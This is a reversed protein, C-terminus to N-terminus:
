LTNNLSLLVKMLSCATFLSLCKIGINNNNIIKSFDAGDTSSSVNNITHYRSQEYNIATFQSTETSSSTIHPSNSILHNLNEILLGSKTFTNPVTTIPVLDYNVAFNKTINQNEVGGTTGAQEEFIEDDKKLWDEYYTLMNTTATIKILMEYEGNDVRMYSMEVRTIKYHDWFDKKVLNGMFDANYILM